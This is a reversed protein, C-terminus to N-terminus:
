QRDGRLLDHHQRVPHGHFYGAIGTPVLCCGPVPSHLHGLFSLGPVPLTQTQGMKLRTRDSLTGMFITTLTSVVATISVMWSVAQPNPTIKDYLFTNYFQNEIAWALQGALSLMLLAAFVRTPLQSKGVATVPKTHMIPEKSTLIFFNIM